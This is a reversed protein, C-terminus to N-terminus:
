HTKIIKSPLVPKYEPYKNGFYEMMAWLSTEACTITETDQSSHPFGNVTFKIGNATTSFNSTCCQFHNENLMKPSLISRGIVFPQTPRLVFFGRYKEQLDPLKDEDSFDSDEIEGEFVSIRVCNRRYYNLKSSYYHYFSDRFVKDVYNSEVLLYTSDKLKDFHAKVSSKFLEKSHKKSIGFEEHLLMEVLEGGKSIPVIYTAINM